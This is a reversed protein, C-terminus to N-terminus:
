HIICQIFTSSTTIRITVIATSIIITDSCRMSYMIYWRVNSENRWISDFITITRPDGVDIDDDDIVDVDVDVIVDGNNALSIWEVFLSLNLFKCFSLSCITFKLLM